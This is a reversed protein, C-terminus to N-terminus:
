RDRRNRRRAQRDGSRARSSRAPLKHDQLPFTLTHVLSRKVPRPPTGRDAALYAIAETDEHLAEPSKGLRDFYAWWQPRAERRHYQFLEGALWRPSGPEAGEVLAQRLRGRADLAETAEASLPQAEPPEPWPLDAPRVEHLWELLGLTARCDEHNYAAIEELLARDPRRIWREYHLIAQTGSRVPGSRYDSCRRSRRSRIPRSGGRLARRLITHLDVFVRRRLLDDVQAERSLHEAMLRKITSPESGSFHYVHLDPHAALRAHVLDM